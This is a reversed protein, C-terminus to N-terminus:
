CTEVLMGVEMVVVVVKVVVKYMVRFVVVVFIMKCKIVTENLTARNVVTFAFRFTV